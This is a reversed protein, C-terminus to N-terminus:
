RHTFYEMRKRLNLLHSRSTMNPGSWHSITDRKLCMSCPSFVMRKYTSSSNWNTNECGFGNKLLQTIITVMLTMDMLVFFLFTKHTLIRKVETSSHLTDFTPLTHVLIHVFFTLIVYMFLINQKNPYNNTVINTMDLELTLMCIIKHKMFQVHKKPQCWFYGM